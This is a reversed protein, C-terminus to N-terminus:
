SYSILTAGGLKSVFDLGLKSQMEIRKTSVGRSARWFFFLNSAGGLLIAIFLLVQIPFLLVDELRM